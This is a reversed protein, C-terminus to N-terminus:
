YNSKETIKYKQSERCYMKFNIKKKKLRKLDKIGQPNLEPGICHDVM